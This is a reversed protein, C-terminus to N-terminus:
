PININNILQYAEKIRQAYSHSRRMVGKDVRTILCGLVYYQAKELSFTQGSIFIKKQPTPALILAGATLTKAVMIQNFSTILEKRSPLNAYRQILPWIFDVAVVNISQHQKIKFLNAGKSVKPILVLMVSIPYSDERKRKIHIVKIGGKIVRDTAISWTNPYKFSVKQWFYATAYITNSFCMLGIIVGWIWISQKM